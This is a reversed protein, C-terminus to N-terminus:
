DQVLFNRIEQAFRAPVTDMAIHQQGEFILTRSNPLMSALAAIADKFTSPSDGGLMLLTPTKLDQFRERSLRYANAARLERPLTPSIAVREKWTPTGRRGEVDSPPMGIVEIMVTMLVKELEGAKLMSDLRDLTERSILPADVPIPPEYLILKTLSKTRLAAELACIGGFSHGLVYVPREISDVACVADEFERELSYAAADGSERRGRRDLAYISFEHELLPVIPDWRASYSGAGHILLLAPGKGVRKCSLVTGDKSTIKLTTM